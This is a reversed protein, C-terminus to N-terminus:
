RVVVPIVKWQRHLPKEQESFRIELSKLYTVSDFTFATEAEQVTIFSHSVTDLM